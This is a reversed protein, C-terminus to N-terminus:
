KLKEIEEDSLEGIGFLAGTRDDTIILFTENREGREFKSKYALDVQRENAGVVTVKSFVLEGSVFKGYRDFTQALAAGLAEKSKTRKAEPHATNFIEEYNRDNYLRHYDDVVSGALKKDNDFYGAKFTLCATSLLGLAAVM